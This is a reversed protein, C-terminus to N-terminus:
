SGGGRARKKAYAIPVRSGAGEIWSRVERMLRGGEGQLRHPNRKNGKGELKKGYTGSALYSKREAKRGVSGRVPTKKKEGLTPKASEEEKGKWERGGSARSDEVSSLEEGTVNNVGEMASGKEIKEVDRCPLWFVDARRGM